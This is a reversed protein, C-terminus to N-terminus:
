CPRRLENFRLYNFIPRKNWSPIGAKLNPSFALEDTAHVPNPVGSITKRALAFSDIMQKLHQGQSFIKFIGSNTDQSFRLSSEFTKKLKEEDEKLHLIFLRHLYALKGEGEMIPHEIQTYEHRVCTVGEAVKESITDTKFYLYKNHDLYVGAIDDLENRSLTRIDDSSFVPEPCKYKGDVFKSSPRCIFPFLTHAFEEDSQSDLAQGAQKLFSERDALSVFFVGVEGLTTPLIRYFPERLNLIDTRTLLM